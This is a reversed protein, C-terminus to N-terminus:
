PNERMIRRFEPLLDLFMDFFFPDFQTGRGDSMIDLVEREPLAKRYVRDNSLADYVDVLSVIRAPEPIANRSLNHPYGRGDWREHHYLAIKNAMSLMPLESGGLIRSGIVTHTKIVTREDTTLPGPKCLIRDPIGIKGIDHMPSALRLDDVMSVSWDANRGMLESYLGIRRVHSGTEGDRSELANLLREITERQTQWITRTQRRVIRELGEGYERLERELRVMREGVHLRARLEDPDLPKVMFDDAGIEFLGAVLDRKESKATLIIIYVFPKAAFRLKRVLEPGDMEPMMWDTLVIDAPDSFHASLAEAGDAAGVVSHGWKELFKVIRLRTIADDEAVIIKM